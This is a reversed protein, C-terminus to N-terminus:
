HKEFFKDVLRNFQDAAEVHIAHGVDPLLVLESNPIRDKLIKSNEPPVLIDDSGAVILTPAEINHLKH